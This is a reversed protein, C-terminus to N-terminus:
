LFILSPGIRIRLGFPIQEIKRTDTQPDTKHGHFPRPPAWACTDTSIEVWEAFACWVSMWVPKERRYMKYPSHWTQVHGGVGVRRVRVCVRWKKQVALAM